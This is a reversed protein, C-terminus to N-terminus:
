RGAETQSEDAATQAYASAALLFSGTGWPYTGRAIGVYGEKTTPGTGASVRIIRGQRDYQRALSAWAKRMYAEHDVPLLNLRKTEALGYVIMATASTELYTDEADLVTHWMGTQQDQVSLLGEIQRAHSELLSRWEETGRQCNKMIEIRSMIVWGNGRGWLCGVREKKGDDYMHYYLGTTPDQLRRTSIELQRIAEQLYRPKSALRAYHALVPTTMFLTDVWLQGNGNWHDFGGDSTRTAKTTIYDVVSGALDLYQPEKTEEYLMLIPFAPGWFGCYGARDDVYGRNLVKEIGHEKWHDAWKRVFNLYEVEGTLRYARMMGAMLVGEGWNFDPPEPHDQMARYAAVRVLGDPTRFPDFPKETIMSVRESHVANPLAGAAVLLWCLKRM